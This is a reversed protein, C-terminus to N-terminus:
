ALHRVSLSSFFFNFVFSVLSSPLPYNKPVSFLRLLSFSQKHYHPWTLLKKKKRKKLLKAPSSLHDVFNCHTPETKHWDTNFKTKSLYQYSPNSELSELSILCQFKQSRLFCHGYDWMYPYLAWSKQQRQKFFVLMRAALSSSWVTM